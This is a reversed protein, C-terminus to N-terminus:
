LKVRLRYRVTSHVVPYNVSVGCCEQLWQQIEGYSSFKNPEQLRKQLKLMAEPPIARKRGQGMRPALLKDLGGSRYKRLWRQVTTRDRGVAEAVDLVQQFQGSKLLYLVQIRERKSTDKQKVLLQKLDDVSETIEIKVARAM